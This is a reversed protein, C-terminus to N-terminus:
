FCNCVVPTGQAKCCSSLLAMKIFSVAMTLCVTAMDRGVWLVRHGATACLCLGWGSARGCVATDKILIAKKDDHQLTWPVGSKELSKAVEVAWYRNTEQLFILDFDLRRVHIMAAKMWREFDEKADGMNSNNEPVGLNWSGIRMEFGYVGQGRSPASAKVAAQLIPPADPPPRKPAPPGRPSPHKPM